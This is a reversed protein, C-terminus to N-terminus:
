KKQYQKQQTQFLAQVMTVILYIHLSTFSCIPSNDFSVSVTNQFGSHYFTKSRNSDWGNELLFCLCGRFIIKFITLQKFATSQDWHWKLFSVCVFYSNHLSKGPLWYHFFLDASYVLHISFFGRFMITSEPLTKKLHFLM